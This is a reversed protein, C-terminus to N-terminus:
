VKDHNEDHSKDSLGVELVKKEDLDKVFGTTRNGDEIDKENRLDIRSKSRLDISISSFNLIDSKIDLNSITKSISTKKKMIPKMFSKEDECKEGNKVKKMWLNRIDNFKSMKREGVNKRKSKKGSSGPTLQLNECKHLLNKM